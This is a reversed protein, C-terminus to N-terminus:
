ISLSLPIMRPSPKLSGRTVSLANRPSFDRPDMALPRLSEILCAATNTSISSSKVHSDRFRSETEVSIVIESLSASDKSSFYKGLIDGM